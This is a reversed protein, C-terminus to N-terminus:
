KKARYISPLAPGPLLQSAEDFIVVDFVGKDAAIYKSVEKPTACIIPFASAITTTSYRFKDMTSKGGQQMTSQKSLERMAELSNTYIHKLNDKYTQAKQSKLYKDYSDVIDKPAPKM